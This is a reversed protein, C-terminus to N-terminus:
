PILALYSEILDNPVLRTRDIAERLNKKTAFSYEGIVKAHLDHGRTTFFWSPYHLTTPGFRVDKSRDNLENTFKVGISDIVHDAILQLTQPPQQSITHEFGRAIESVGEIVIPQECQISAAYILLPDVLFNEISYRSLSIVGDEHAASNDRDVLGRVLERAFTKRLSSTKEIVKSRGGPTKSPGRGVSVPEFWLQPKDDLQGDTVLVRSVLSHFIEDDSDEVWVLRVGPIIQLLTGVLLSVASGITAKEIRTPSQLLQYLSSESALVITDPRQTVLLTQIGYQEALVHELFNLFDPILLPHLHADTEDLLLLQPLAGRKACLIMSIVAFITQEGSSLENTNVETGDDMVLLLSYDETVRSPPIVTFDIGASHLMDTVVEWPPTDEDRRPVEDGERLEMRAEVQKLYFRMCLKALQNPLNQYNLDLDVFSRDPLAGMIKAPDLDGIPIGTGEQVFNRIRRFTIDDKPDLIRQPWGALFTPAIGGPNSLVASNPVYVCNGVGREVGEVRFKDIIGRLDLQQNRRTDNRLYYNILELLQSKGVGNRGSLITFQPLEETEFPGRLAKYRVDGFILKMKILHKEFDSEAPPIYSLTQNEVESGASSKM